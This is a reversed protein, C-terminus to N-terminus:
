NVVFYVGIVGIIFLVVIVLAKIQANQKREKELKLKLTRLEEPSAKKFQPNAKIHSKSGYTERVDKLSKRKLRLDKNQKLSTKMAGVASAGLLGM